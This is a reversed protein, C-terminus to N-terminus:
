VLVIRMPRGDRLVKPATTEVGGDLWSIGRGM